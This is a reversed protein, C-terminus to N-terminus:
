RADATLDTAAPEDAANTQGVAVRLHQLTGLIPTEYVVAFFITSGAPLVSSTTTTETHLKKIMEVQVSKGKDNLTEIFMDPHGPMIRVAEAKMNRVAIVVLRSHENIDRSFTSLALGHLPPTWRKFQKPEKIAQTLASKAVASPETIGGQLKRSRREVEVTVPPPVQTPAQTIAPPPLSHPLPRNITTVSALVPATPDIGDLNVALGANQRAVVVESRSYNIVCRHAQQSLFPVPYIMFTLVIGSQMQVMISTAPTPQKQTDKITSPVVFGSGARLVMFHDKAKTPSDDVTVMDSDGPHIAFFRDSAPFEVITVGHQALGLRVIPNQNGRVSVNAEGSLYNPPTNQMLMVPPT